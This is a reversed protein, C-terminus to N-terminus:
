NVVVITAALSISAVPGALCVGINTSIGLGVALLSTGLGDSFAWTQVPAMGSVVWDVTTAPSMGMTVMGSGLAAIPGVCSAGVPDAGAVSIAMTTSGTCTLATPTSLSVTVGTLAPVVGVAPAFTAVVTGTCLVPNGKIAAAATTPQSWALVVACAVAARAVSHVRLGM